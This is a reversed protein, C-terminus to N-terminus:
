AGEIQTTASAEDGNIKHIFGTNSFAYVSHSNALLVNMQQTTTIGRVRTQM